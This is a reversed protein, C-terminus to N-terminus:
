SLSALRRLVASKLEDVSEVVQTFPFDRIKATAELDIPRPYVMVRKNGPATTEMEPAIDCPYVISEVRCKGAQSYLNTVLSDAIGLVCKAITNSTTPAMVFTHYYGKYFLGVPPASAARDRYVPMKDKIDNINIGYMKLVEEGAQSLYCDVNDLGLMFELCEEIYHGSGTIAWALRPAKM